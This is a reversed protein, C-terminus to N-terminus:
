TKAAHAMAVQLVNVNIQLLVDEVAQVFMRMQPLYMAASQLVDEM